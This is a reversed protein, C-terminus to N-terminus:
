GNAVAEQIIRIAKRKAAPWTKREEDEIMSTGISEVKKGNVLHAAYGTTVKRGSAVSALSETIMTVVGVRKFSKSRPGQYEVIWEGYVSGDVLGTMNGGTVYRVQFPSPKKAKPAQAKDANNKAVATNKKAANSM